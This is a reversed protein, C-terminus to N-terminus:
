LEVVGEALCLSILGSMGTPKLEPHGLITGDPQTPWWSIFNTPWDPWVGHHGVVRSTIFVYTYFAM